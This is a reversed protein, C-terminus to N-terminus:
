KLVEFLIKYFNDPQEYMPFHGSKEIWHLNIKPDALKLEYAIFTLFDERGIILDIRGKYKSLDKAVDYKMADNLLFNFTVANNKGDLIPYLSDVKSKDFIYPLRWLKLLEEMESKAILNNQAKTNLENFREREYRGFRNLLIDLTVNYMPWGGIAFYGPAILVLSKVKEPFKTAYLMALSAGYSHGCIVVKNINLKKILLNIDNLAATLNITTSDFLNPISRGTGRQEFLVAKYKKSLEKAIPEIQFAYNGPGGSLLIIPDGNGYTHYYLYGQEYKISDTTQGSILGSVFLAIITFLQKM